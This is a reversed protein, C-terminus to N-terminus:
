LLIKLGVHESWFGTIGGDLFPTQTMEGQAQTPRKFAKVSLICYFHSHSDWLQILFATCSRGRERKRLVHAKPAVFPWTLLGPGTFIGLQLCWTSVDCPSLFFDKLLELQAPGLPTLRHLGPAMCVLASSKPVGGDAIGDSYLWLASEM